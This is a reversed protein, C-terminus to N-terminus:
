RVSIGNVCWSSGNKGLTLEVTSQPSTSLTGTIVGADVGNTNSINTSRLNKGGAWGKGILTSRVAELDSEVFAGPCGNAVASSSSTYLASVFNNGVSTVGSIKSFVFASCGGILAVLLLFMALLIWPWKAKKKKVVDTANWSPQGAM